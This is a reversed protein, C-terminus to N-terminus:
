LGFSLVGDENVVQCKHGFSCLTADERSFERVTWAPRKNGLIRDGLAGSKLLM